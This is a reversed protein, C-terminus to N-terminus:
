TLMSFLKGDINVNNYINKIFDINLSSKTINKIIVVKYFCKKHIDIITSKM